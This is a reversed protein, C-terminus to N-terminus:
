DLDPEFSKLAAIIKKRFPAAFPSQLLDNIWVLLPVTKDILEYTKQSKPSTDYIWYLIVGMQYFWLYKPLMPEIDSHFKSSSDKIINTFIELSELRLTRSAESFPSLESEPNAAVRFLARSMEKHPEAIEIKSKVVRHLRKEFSKEKEFFGELSKLHDEHLRQYYEQILSETSAFHYYSAGPAVGAKAAIARMTTKEFGEKAFLAMATKFLTEKTFEAKGM